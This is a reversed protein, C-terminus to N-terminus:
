DDAAERRGAAAARHRRRAAYEELKGAYDSLTQADVYAKLIRRM